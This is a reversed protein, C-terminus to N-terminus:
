GRMRINISFLTGDETEEVIGASNCTCDTVGCFHKALRAAQSKSLYLRVSGHESKIRRSRVTIPKQNHFNFGPAYEVQM